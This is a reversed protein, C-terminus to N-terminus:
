AVRERRIVAVASRADILLSGSGLAAGTDTLCLLAVTKQSDTLRRMFSPLCLSQSDVFFTMDVFKRVPTRSGELGGIHFPPKM